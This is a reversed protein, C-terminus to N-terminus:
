SEGNVAYQGAISILYEAHARCYDCIQHCPEGHPRPPEDPDPSYNFTCIGVALVEVLDPMLDIADCDGDATEDVHHHPYHM